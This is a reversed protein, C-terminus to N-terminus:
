GGGALMQVALPDCIYPRARPGFSGSNWPDGDKATLVVGQYVRGPRTWVVVGDARAVSVSLTVDFDWTISDDSLQQAEPAASEKEIAMSLVADGASAEGGAVAPPVGPEKHRNISDAVCGELMGIDVQHAGSTDAVTVRLRKSGQLDLQSRSPPSQPPRRSRAPPPPLFCAGCLLIGVVATLTILKKREMSVINAGCHRRLAPLTASEFSDKYVRIQSL